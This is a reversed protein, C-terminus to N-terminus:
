CYFSTVFPSIIKFVIWPQRGYGHLEKHLFLLFGIPNKRYSRFLPIVVQAFKDMTEKRPMYKESLVQIFPNCGAIPSPWIATLFANKRYSRFLPIVVQKVQGNDAYIYSKESLVQIFPNCSESLQKMIELRM